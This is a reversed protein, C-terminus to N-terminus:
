THAAAAWVPATSGPYLEFHASYTGATSDYTYATCLYGATTTGTIGFTPETTEWVHRMGIRVDLALPVSLGNIGALVTHSGSVGAGVAVAADICWIGTIDIPASPMNPLAGAIADQWATLDQTTYSLGLASISTINIERLTATSDDVFFQVWKSVTRGVTNATM